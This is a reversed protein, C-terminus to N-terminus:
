DWDRIVGQKQGRGWISSQVWGWPLARDCCLCGPFSGLSVLVYAGLGRCGHLAASEESHQAGPTLFPSVACYQTGSALM